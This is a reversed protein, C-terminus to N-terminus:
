KILKLQILTSISYAKQKLLEANEGEFMEDVLEHVIHNWRLFQKIELPNQQHINKHVEMPNGDYDGSFLILNEWFKTMGFMFREKQETDMKLFYPFLLDDICLKKYFSKVFADLDEKNLIDTKM